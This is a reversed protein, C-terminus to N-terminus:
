FTKASASAKEKAKQVAEDKKPSTTGEIVISQFDQFGIFGLITQMYRKQFDVSEESGYEGGRAYILQCKKGKILGEYGKESVNFAYTPQVLIDIYHKLKYPIGFNWMPLSFLYKDGSKFEAILAEVKKWANVQEQTKEKGHMIAYKADITDGDFPPLDKKWLDITVVEDQPHTKRYEELFHNAVAISASRKKRPSSEVYILRAM